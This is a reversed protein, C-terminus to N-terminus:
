DDLTQGAPTAGLAAPRAPDNAWASWSGPYLSAEVGLVALALIDRAASVGSGCYAAVASPEGDLAPALLVRLEDDSPM